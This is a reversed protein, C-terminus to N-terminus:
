AINGLRRYLHYADLHGRDGARDPDARPPDPQPDV